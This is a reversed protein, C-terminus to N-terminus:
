REIIGDGSAAVAKSLYADLMGAAEEEGGKLLHGDFTVAISSHGMFTSIAKANVGAAIWFSASTHRAEHLTIRGRGKWAADARGTVQTPAFPVTATRGFLLDGGRRGTRLLHEKLLTRLTAVIPVNRRRRGKTDIRGEKDDWGHRVRIVGQDFDVDDVRLAMLEGRRLGAYLATAWMARDDVPLAAILATAEKPSAIRDRGGRVAPLELGATPNVTLRDRSLERRFIAKLPIVTAQITSAALGDAV